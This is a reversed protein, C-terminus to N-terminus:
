KPKSALVDRSLETYYGMIDDTSMASIYRELYKKKNILTSDLCSGASVAQKDMTVEIFLRRNRDHSWNKLQVGVLTVPCTVTDSSSSPQFDTGTKIMLGEAYQSQGNLTITSNVSYWDSLMSWGENRNPGSLIFGEGDRDSYFYEIHAFRVLDTGTYTGPVAVFAFGCSSSDSRQQGGGLAYGITALSIGVEATVAAGHGTFPAVVTLATGAKVISTRVRSSDSEQGGGCDPNDGSAPYQIHAVTATAGTFKFTETDADRTADIFFKQLVPPARTSIRVEDYWDAIKLWEDTVGAHAVMPPSLAVLLIAARAIRNM